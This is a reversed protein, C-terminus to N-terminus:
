NRKEEAAELQQILWEVNGRDELAAAFVEYDRIGIIAQVFPRLLVLAQSAVYTLPMSSELVFIAPATLKRAVLGEAVKRLVERQRELDYRDEPKPLFDDTM